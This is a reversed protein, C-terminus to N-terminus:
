LVLASWCLMERGLPVREGSRSESGKEGQEIAERLAKKISHVLSGTCAVGFLLNHPRGASSIKTRHEQALAQEMSALFNAKKKKLDM